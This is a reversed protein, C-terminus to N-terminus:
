RWSLPSRAKSDTKTDVVEAEEPVLVEPIMAKMVWRTGLTDPGEKLNV